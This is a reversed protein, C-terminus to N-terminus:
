KKFGRLLLVTLALDQVVTIFVNWNYIDPGFMGIALVTIM